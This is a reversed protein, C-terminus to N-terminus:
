ESKPVDEFFFSGLTQQEGNDNIFTVDFVDGFGEIETIIYQKGRTIGTVQEFKERGDFHGALWEKNSAIVPINVKRKGTFPYKDTDYDLRNM